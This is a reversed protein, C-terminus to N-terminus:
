TNSREKSLATMGTQAMAISMEDSLIDWLRNLGPEKAAAIALKTQEWASGEGQGTSDSHDVVVHTQIQSPPAAPQTAHARHERFWAAFGWAM